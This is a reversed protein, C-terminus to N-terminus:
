KQGSESNLDLILREVTFSNQILKEQDFNMSEGGLIQKLQEILEKQKKESLKQIIQILQNSSQVTEQQVDKPNSQDSCFKEKNDEVIASEQQAQDNKASM